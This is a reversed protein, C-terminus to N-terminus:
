VESLIARSEAGGHMGLYSIARSQLEPTASGQAIRKLVARAQASESQALVFLAREKLKPSATGALLKEIMPVAEEPAQHQLANLAMLKLDEDAQDQPRAPQGANRRVEAELLRAQQLYPSKPHERSLTAITALAEARQGLRDQSYAKWYLAADTKSGKLVLVENFREVAREYRGERAHAYAEDYARNERDKERDRAAMERAKEREEASSQHDGFTYALDAYAKAGAILAMESALTAAEDLMALGALKSAPPATPKGKTAPPQEKPPAGTPQAEVSGAALVTTLMLALVTQTKM